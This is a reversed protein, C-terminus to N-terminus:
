KLQPELKSFEQFHQNGQDVTWRDPHLVVRYLLHISQGPSLSYGGLRKIANPNVELFDTVGIPNHAFLGYTRVHWYGENGFSTPHVFMAIGVDKDASPTPRGSYDVWQAAQGWAEADQQGQSNLIRGQGKDVRMAEPVRMGFMGEKTDGFHIPTQKTSDAHKLLYECDIIRENRVRVPDNPRRVTYKCLEQLVGMGERTQWEHQATVSATEGSELKVISQHVVLGTDDGESWFNVGDVEGFTMWLSRHHPHDHEEGPSDLVMPYNRSMKSQDHGFLPWLIPKTGSRFLYSTVLQGDQLLDVRDKERKSEFGQGQVWSPGNLLLIVFCVLFYGKWNSTLPRNCSIDRWFNLNQKYLRFRMRLIEQSSLFSFEDCNWPKPSKLQVNGSINSQYPSQV